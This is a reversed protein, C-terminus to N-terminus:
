SLMTDSVIIGDHDAYLFQDRKFNIGGFTILIDRNGMGKKRSKLPHTRLARIGIPVQSLEVSDRVCGYVVIGQWGNNFAIIALDGGLLACRNSGGGDVVLIRNNVKEELTTRILVNDEFVKLTSIQGSFVANGGFNKLIPEAIQFHEQESHKDCLDATTFPM